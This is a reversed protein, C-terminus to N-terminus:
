ITRVRQPPPPLPPPVKSQKATGTIENTAGDEAGVMHRKPQTVESMLISVEPLTNAVQSVDLVKTERVDIHEVLTEEHLWDLDGQLASNYRLGVEKLHPCRKLCVINGSLNCHTLDLHEILPLEAGRVASCIADLLLDLPGGLKTYSLDLYELKSTHGNDGDAHGRRGPMAKSLTLPTNSASFEKLLPFKHLWSVDGKIATGDIYLKELSSCHSLESLHGSVMTQRLDLVQLNM